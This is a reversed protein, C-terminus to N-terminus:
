HSKFNFEHSVINNGTQSDCTNRAHVAKDLCETDGRPPCWGPRRPQPSCISRGRLDYM